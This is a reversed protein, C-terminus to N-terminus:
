YGMKRASDYLSPVNKSTALPRLLTRSKVVTALVQQACSPLPIAVAQKQLPKCVLESHRLSASSDELLLLHQFIDVVPPPLCCEEGSIQSGLGGGTM